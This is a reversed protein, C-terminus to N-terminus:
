IQWYAMLNFIDLGNAPFRSNIDIESENLIPLPFFNNGYIRICSFIVFFRSNILHQTFDTKYCFPLAHLRTHQGHACMAPICRAPDSDHNLRVCLSKNESLRREGPRGNNHQILAARELLSFLGPMANVCANINIQLM